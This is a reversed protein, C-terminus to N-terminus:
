PELGALYDPVNLAQQGGGGCLEHCGPGIGVPCELYM